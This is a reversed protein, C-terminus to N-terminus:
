RTFIINEADIGEAERRERSHPTMKNFRNDMTFGAALLLDIIPQRSKSSVEVLISKIHSSWGTMGQVVALEQGDIDIKINAATILTLNNLAIVQMPMGENGVQGGSDGAARSCEFKLTETKLGVACPVPFVYLFNNEKINGSLAEYNEPMPEFSFVVMRPFVSAAYLSYVGVNAGIDFFMDTPKFSRIWELTEPEKTWFTEARYKEMPSEQRMKFPLAKM